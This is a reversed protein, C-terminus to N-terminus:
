AVKASKKFFILRIFYVVVLIALIIILDFFFIYRSILTLYLFCVLFVAILRAIPHRKFIHKKKLPYLFCFLLIAGITARALDVNM